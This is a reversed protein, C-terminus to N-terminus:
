SDWVGVLIVALLYARVRKEVRLGGICPAGLGMRRRIISFPFCHVKKRMPKRAHTHTVRPGWILNGISWTYVQSENSKKVTLRVAESRATVKLLDVAWIEHPIVSTKINRDTPDM